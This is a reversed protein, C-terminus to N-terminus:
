INVAEGFLKPYISVQRLLPFLNKKISYIINLFIVTTNGFANGYSVGNDSIM